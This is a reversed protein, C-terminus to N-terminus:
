LTAVVERNIEISQCLDASICGFRQSGLNLGQIDNEFLNEYKIIETAGHQSQDSNPQDM